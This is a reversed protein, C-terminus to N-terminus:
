IIALVLVQLLPDCIAALTVDNSASLIYFRYTSKMIRRILLLFTLIQCSVFSGVIPLFILQFPQPALSITFIKDSNSFTPSTGVIRPTQYIRTDLNGCCTGFVLVM